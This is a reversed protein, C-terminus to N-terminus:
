MMPLYLRRERERQIERYVCNWSMTCLIICVSYRVDYVPIDAGLTHAALAIHAATVGSGCTDVVPQSLDVGAAVFEIIYSLHQMM